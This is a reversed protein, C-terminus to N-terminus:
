AYMSKRRSNVMRQFDRINRVIVRDNFLEIKGLKNLHALLKQVDNIQMGAWNAIEQMTVRLTVPEQVDLHPDQEALMNMVDMIKLQPDDLLLIMLRRKADYIRKSFIVLLKYALQPNGQLLADFNERRFRLLKVHEIAIASASRPEEELIAMEGFVDGAGLIDLTKERNNIIKVIEVRGSQIFYFDNGPEFECFIIDNPEYEVGFKDFLKDDLLM